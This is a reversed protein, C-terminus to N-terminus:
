PLLGGSLMTTEYGAQDPDWGHESMLGYSLFPLLDFTGGGQIIPARMFAIGSNVFLPAATRQRPEALKDITDRVANGARRREFLRM